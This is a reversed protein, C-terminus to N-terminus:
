ITSYVKRIKQILKDSESSNEALKAFDKVRTIERKILSMDYEYNECEDIFEMPRPLTVFDYIYAYDKNDFKRLVRGRRQVYERPNVGSALIYAKEISKISVGEDLCKIAALVQCTIGEDFSQILRRRQEADEESTFKSVVIGLKNYLIDTVADIQKLDEVNARGDAFDYDNVTTAGCYVLIHNNHVEKEMMEALKSLKNQAGAVIRARKILLMEGRKSYYIEKTKKDYRTEKKIEDSIANYQELEEPTLSVPIPYYFYRTLQDNEIADKLTYEICKHGFFAYLANTGEKDNYRDITASLALRYTYTENLLKRLNRAGFNHAEDVVLLTKGQISRIQDQIYPTRFSANTTILCLYYCVNRNFDEVENLLKKKWQRTPSGSYASIYEINFAKLDESWQDVLHQYPCCIIVAVREQTLLQTIGKLATWTKGSGTAMDFIGCCDNEFWTAVAKDQYDRYKIYSPIHPGEVILEEKESFEEEDINHNYNPKYHKQIADSLDKPFDIVEDYEYRNEWLLNFKESRDEIAEYDGNMTTYTAILENNSFMAATTDNYSGVFCIKNGICDKMIGTKHHFIGPRKVNKPLAIKIDLVGDKILHALFNLREEEFYNDASDFLPKLNNVAVRKREEYGRNIANIDDVSLNGPSIIYQIVGGNEVLRQIGVTMEYLAASSFYAVARQYVVSNSLVPIFFDSLVDDEPPEYFKKINIQNFSM